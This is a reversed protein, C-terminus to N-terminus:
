SFKPKMGFNRTIEIQKKENKVDRDYAKLHADSYFIPAFIKHIEAKTPKHKSNAYKILAGVAKKVKEANRGYQSVKNKYYALPGDINCAEKLNKAVAAKLTPGDHSSLLALIAIDQVMHIASQPFLSFRDQLISLYVDARREGRARDFFKYCVVKRNATYQNIADIVQKNDGSSQAYIEDPTLKPALGGEGRSSHSRDAPEVNDSPRQLDHTPENEFRPVYQDANM